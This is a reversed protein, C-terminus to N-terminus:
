MHRAPQGARLGARRRLADKDAGNTFTGDDDRKKARAIERRNVKELLANGETIADRVVALEALSTATSRTTTAQDSAWGSLRALEASLASITGTLVRCQYLAIAACFLATLAILTLSIM